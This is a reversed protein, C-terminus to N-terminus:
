ANLLSLNWSAAKILFETAPPTSLATKWAQSLINLLKEQSRKGSTTNIIRIGEGGGKMKDFCSISSIIARNICKSVRGPDFPLMTQFSLPLSLFPKKKLWDTEQAQPRRSRPKKFVWGNPLTLVKRFKLGPSPLCPTKGGTVRQAPPSRHHGGPNWLPSGPPHPCPINTSFVM